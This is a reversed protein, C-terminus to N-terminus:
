QYHLMETDQALADPDAKLRSLLKFLDAGRNETSGCVDGANVRLQLHLTSYQPRVPYHFGASLRASGLAGSDLIREVFRGVGAVLAELMELNALGSLDRYTHLYGGPKSVGSYSFDGPAGLGLSAHDQGESPFLMDSSPRRMRSSPSRTRDAVRLLRDAVRLQDKGCAAVWARINSLFAPHIWWAVVRLRPGLETTVIDDLNWHYKPNPMFFFAGHHDGGLEVLEALGFEIADRAYKSSGHVIGMVVNSVPQSGYFPRLAHKHFGPQQCVAYVESADSKIPNHFV